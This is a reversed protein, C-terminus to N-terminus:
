RMLKIVEGGGTVGQGNNYVTAWGVQNKDAATVFMFVLLFYALLFVSKKM